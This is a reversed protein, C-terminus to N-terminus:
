PTFDAGHAIGHVQQVDKPIPMEPAILAQFTSLGRGNPRFNVDGVLLSESRRTLVDTM